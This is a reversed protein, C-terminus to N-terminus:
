ELNNKSPMEPNILISSLNYMAFDINEKVFKDFNKHNELIYITNINVLCYFYM